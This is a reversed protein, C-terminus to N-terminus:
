SKLEWIVNHSNECFITVPIEKNGPYFRSSLVIEGKNVYVEVASADVLIRLNELEKLRANRRTRGAGAGEYFEMFFVSNQYQFLLESGLWIRCSDNHIEDIEIEFIGESIVIKEGNAAERRRKRLQKFEKVPNQYLRGNKETIERPITLCHQWGSTVTPNHYEAEMDPLGMWGILIRRGQEDVFTQPAYFDFGMDWERFGDIEIEELNEISSKLHLYGSQYINQYREQERELGQPCFSLFAEKGFELYDPCEWMYGFPLNTTLDKRLNWTHLDNSEYLLVAGMDGKKRGGLMLFYKDSKKWVKPDRVHLTYTNPYDANTLLLRKKGPGEDELFVLVQSAERGELIYDYNGQEKRNGTYFLCIGQEEVLACGSYVGDRDYDKDPKLCIGEDKWTVLDRSTFHRWMKKGTGCADFTYQFFVHYVGDKQCLGNPDNMWGTQPAIHFKLRYPDKYM